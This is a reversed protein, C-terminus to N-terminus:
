RLYEQFHLSLLTTCPLDVLSGEYPDAVYRHLDGDKKRSVYKGGISFGTYVGELVKELEAKDVVKATVEIQKASDNFVMDTFKGAAITGHMARLNGVSKGDTAKSIDSSWKEFYPKSGAYDFIEKSRDEVEGALVGYVIGKVADVKTIPVFVSLKEMTSEQPRLGPTTFESDTERLAKRAKPRRGRKWGSYSQLGSTASPPAGFTSM